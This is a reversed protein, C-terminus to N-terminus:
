HTDPGDVTATYAAVVDPITSVEVYIDTRRQATFTVFRNTDGPGDGLDLSAQNLGWDIILAAMTPEEVGNLELTITEGASVRIWWYQYNLPQGIHPGIAITGRCSNGNEISSTFTVNGQLYVRHGTACSNSVPAAAATLTYDGVDSTSQGGVWMKYVAEGGVVSFTNIAFGTSSTYVGAPGRRFAYVPNPFIEGTKGGFGFIWDFDEAELAFTAMQNGNMTGLRGQPVIYLDEYQDETGNNFVCDDASVTGQNAGPTLVSPRCTARQNVKALSPELDDLGPQVLDDGGCSAIFTLCVAIVLRDAKM